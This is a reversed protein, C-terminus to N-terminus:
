GSGRFHIAELIHEEKIVESGGLDAITRAVKTLRHTARASLCSQDVALKLIALCAEDLSAFAQLDALDMLANTKGNKYRNKQISRAEEVRKKVQASPEASSHGHLEHFFPTPVEIHMDFRDRLPGSIKGQYKKIQAETDKCPKEPHGLYGCPCPNFAAICIFHTPYTMTRKARSICVKRDELPQRLLELVQRPFETLEDLFLIGHHALSVEGPKPSAGGGVLGAGSTTHHPARFPREFVLGSDPSLLGALSHIRTVELVEEWTLEPMIGPFGRALLTKGSGPPGWMLVNHGGAAAIELGRKVQVQGRIDAFDSGQNKRQRPQLDVKLPPICQPDKFFTAAESLNHIPIVDIGPVMAGERGNVAPLLVGKYGNERAYLTLAMAGKLPRVDGSLGLEGAILYHQLLPNHGLKGLGHLLGLAIPLDYAMGEKRVQAPALNITAYISPLSLNSNRLATLVRDRSEKIATDPLGVIVLTQREDAIQADVEVDVELADLGIFAVSKLRALPM